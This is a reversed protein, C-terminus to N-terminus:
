CFRPALYRAIMDVEVNVVTGVRWSGLTTGKLTYPVVTTEVMAGEVKKITLSVGDLCISGKEVIYPKLRDPVQIRFDVNDTSANRRSRVVGTSDVHGSVLHGSIRDGLRLAPELNVSSGRTLLALNTKRLTESVSDFEFSNGKIATTTQCVGNVAVSAGPELQPALRDATITFHVARGRNVMGGVVGVEHVIGSFL